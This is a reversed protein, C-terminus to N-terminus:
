NSTLTITTVGTSVTSCCIMNLTNNGSYATFVVYFESVFGEVFYNFSGVVFNNLSVDCIVSPDNGLPSITMNYVTTSNISFVISNNVYCYSTNCTPLPPSTTPSYTSPTLTSPTLTSATLTSPTLTSGVFTSPSYTSPQLTSPKFTSAQLTSPQLTSPQLTSPQLTSPQLTTAALTSGVLTSPSYTSPQLTSPIYTTAPNTTAPTTTPTSTICNWAGVLVLNNNSYRFMCCIILLTWLVKGVDM